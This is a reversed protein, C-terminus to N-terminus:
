NNSKDEEPINIRDYVDVNGYNTFKYIKEGYERPVHITMITQEPREIREEAWETLIAEKEKLMREITKSRNDIILDKKAIDKELTAIKNKIEKYHFLYYIFDKM